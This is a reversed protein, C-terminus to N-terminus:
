VSQGRKSGGAVAEHNKKEGRLFNQFEIAVACKASKGRGKSEDTRYNTFLLLALDGRARDFLIGRLRKRWLKRNLIFMCSKM